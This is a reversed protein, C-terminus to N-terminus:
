FPENFPYYKHNKAFTEPILRKNSNLSNLQKMEDATLTFDFVNFDEEIRASNTSKPIVIVNREIQYRILVQAPSKKHKDGIAKVKPNTLLGFSAHALPSYATVAVNHDHCFDILKQQNLLPHCEVQFITFVYKFISNFKLNM